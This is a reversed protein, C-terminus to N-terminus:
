ISNQLICFIGEWPLSENEIIVFIRLEEYVNLFFFVTSFMILIDECRIISHQQKNAGSSIISITIIIWLFHKPTSFSIKNSFTALMTRVDNHCFILCKGSHPIFHARGDNLYSLKGHPFNWCITKLFARLFHCGHSKIHTGRQQFVTQFNFHVIIRVSGSLPLMREQLYWETSRSM